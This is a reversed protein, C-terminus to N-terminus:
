RPEPAASHRFDERGCEPCVGAGGHAYGCWVCVGRRRRRGRVMGRVAMPIVMAAAAYIATNVVFGNWVPMLPLACVTDGRGTVNARHALLLGSWAPDFHVSPPPVKIYYCLRLSRMPWGSAVEIRTGGPNRLSSRGGISSWGPPDRKPFQNTLTSDWWQSPTWDVKEFGVLKWLFYANRRGDHVALSGLAAWGVLRRPVAAFYWAVCVNIVVGMVLAAAVRWLWKMARMGSVCGGGGERIRVVRVRRAAQSEMKKGMRGGDAGIGGGDRLGGHEGCLGAMGSDAALCAPEGRGSWQCKRYGHALGGVLSTRVPGIHAPGHRLLAADPNEDAM